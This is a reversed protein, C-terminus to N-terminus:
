CLPTPAVTVLVADALAPSTCPQQSPQRRCQLQYQLQVGPQKHKTTHYSLTCWVGVAATLQMRAAATICASGTPQCWRSLLQQTCHTCGARRCVCFMRCVPPWLGKGTGPAMCQLLPRMNQQEVGGDDTLAGTWCSLPIQASTISHTLQFGGCAGRWALGCYLALFTSSRLIGLGM